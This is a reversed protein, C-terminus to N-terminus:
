PRSGHEFIALGKRSDTLLWLNQYFAVAGAVLLVYYAVTWGVALTGDDEVGENSGKSERTQHDEKGRTVVPPGGVSAGAEVRGWLRPLGCWNCFSHALIVALLSGTRLFVFAAYWGFITTYTFQFLSRFLAPLLPTHPHTLKYEYFHHIHAIGFYLPTLFVIYTPSTKALLHLPIISSRFVVEETIPGQASPIHTLQPPKPPPPPRVAVFNRWGIWGRLTESVRRGRVWDKWEGEAIGKEFLPGTFLLATLLLSQAIETPAIPWWGLLRLAEWPTAKGRYLILYFTALASLACSFTM